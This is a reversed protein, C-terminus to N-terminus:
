IPDWFEEDLHAFLQVEKEDRASYIKHVTFQTGHDNLIYDWIIVIELVSNCLKNWNRSNSLTNFVFKNRFNIKSIVKVKEFPVRYKRSM